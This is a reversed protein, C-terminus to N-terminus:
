MKRHGNHILCISVKFGWSLLHTWVVCGVVREPTKLTLNSCIEYITIANGYNFKFLYIGVPIKLMPANISISTIPPFFSDSNGPRRKGPRRKGPRCSNKFFKGHSKWANGSKEWFSVTNKWTKWNSYFCNTGKLIAISPDNCTPQWDRLIFM